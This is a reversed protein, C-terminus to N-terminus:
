SSLYEKSCTHLHDVLKGIAPDKLLDVVNLLNGIGEDLMSHYLALYEAETDDAKKGFKNELIKKLGSYSKVKSAEEPALGLKQGIERVIGLSIRNIITMRDQVNIGARDGKASVYRVTNALDPRRNWLIYMADESTRGNCEYFPHILALYLQFASVAHYITEQNIEPNSRDAPFLEEAVNSLKEMLRPVQEYSACLVLYGALGITTSLRESSRLVGALRDVGNLDTTSLLRKAQDDTLVIHENNRMHAKHILRIQTLIDIRHRAARPLLVNRVYDTSDARKKIESSRDTFKAAARAMRERFEIQRREAPLIREYIKPPVCEALPNDRFGHMGNEPHIFETSVIFETRVTAHPLKKQVYDLFIQPDARDILQWIDPHVIQWFKRFVDHISISPPPYGESPFMAGFYHKFYGNNDNFLQDILRLGFENIREQDETTTTKETILSRVQAPLAELGRSMMAYVPNQPYRSLRKYVKGRRRTPQMNFYTFSKKTEEDLYPEIVEPLDIGFGICTYVIDGAMEPTVIGEHKRECYAKVIPDVSNFDGDHIDLVIKVINFVNMPEIDTQQLHSAIFSNPHIRIGSIILNTIITTISDQDLPYNLLDVVYQDTINQSDEEAFFHHLFPLASLASVTQHHEKLYQILALNHRGGARVQAGTLALNIKFRTDKESTLPDIYEPCELAAQLAPIQDVRFENLLIDTDFHNFIQSLQETEIGYGFLSIASRQVVERRLSFAASRDDAILIIRKALTEEADRPTLTHLESFRTLKAVIDPDERELSITELVDKVAGGYGSSRALTSLWSGITRPSHKKRMTDHLDGDIWTFVINRVDDITLENYSDIIIGPAEPLNFFDRGESPLDKLLGEHLRLLHETQSSIREQSEQSLYLDKRYTQATM